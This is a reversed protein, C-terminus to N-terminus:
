ALHPRLTVTTQELEEAESYGHDNKSLDRARVNFADFGVTTTTERGRGLPPSMASSWPAGFAPCSEM